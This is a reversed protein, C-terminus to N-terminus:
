ITSINVDIDGRRNEADGRVRAESDALNATAIRTYPHDSGLYNQCESLTAADTRAAEALQGSAALANAYNVAAAVAFPHYPYLHESLCDYAAKADETAQEVEGAALRYISLNTRCVDAFPHRPGYINRYDDLCRAALEAADAHEGRAHLDAARSLTCAVTGPDHIGYRRRFSALTSETLSAAVETDGMRRLTVAQHKRARLTYHGHKGDSAALKEAAKQLLALAEDLDGLELLCIAIRCQAWATFPHDVGQVRRRLELVERHLRLAARVEGTLFLSLALNNAADITLHDDTGRLRRFGDWTAQDEAWADRYWGLARKDAGLGMATLLTHIHYVGLERRQRAITDSDLDFAARFRGLSRHTDAVEAALRLTLPDDRGIGPAQRWRNLCQEGLTKADTWQGTRNLYFLQYLLWRRVEPSDSDPARAAALHKQLEEYVPYQRADFPQTAPPAFAALIRLAADRAAADRGEAALEARLQDRPVQHMRVLGTSADIDALSHQGLVQLLRPLHDTTAAADDVSFGIHDLMAPSGVLDRSVGHPSLYATVDLLRATAQLLTDKSHKLRTYTVSWAAASDSVAAKAHEAVDRRFQEIAEALPLETGRISGAANFLGLPVDKMDTALADLSQPDAGPLRLRLYRISDERPLADIGIIPAYEEWGGERSTVIVHRHPGSDPLLRNERLATPDRAGDYVLLWRDVPEGLRLADLVDRVVREGTRDVRPTATPDPMGLRPALAGLDRHISSEQDAEVWWVLDYDSGFRHAFERAVSSKGVGSPGTLACTGAGQGGKTLTDRLLDLADERGVFLPNRNHVNWVGPRSGPFRVDAPAQPTEPDLVGFRDLLV